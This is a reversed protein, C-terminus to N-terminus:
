LSSHPRSHLGGQSSSLLQMLMSGHRVQEVLLSPDAGARVRSLLANAEPESFSKLMEFLTELDEHKRKQMATETETYQCPSERAVCEQCKPRRGDCKTKRSRCAACALSVRHRKPPLSHTEGRPSTSPLLPRLLPRPIENPSTSSPDMTPGPFHGPFANRPSLPIQSGGLLAARREVGLLPCHKLKACRYVHLDASGELHM